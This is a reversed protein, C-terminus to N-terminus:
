TNKKIWDLYASVRVLVTVSDCEESGGSVVGVLTWVGNQECAFPGGSDGQCSSGVTAEDKACINKRTVGYIDHQEALMQCRRLSLIPLKVKYLRDATVAKGNKMYKDNRGWGSVICEEGKLADFEARAPLCAARVNRDTLDLPEKLTLIAIDNTFIHVGQHIYDEHRKVHVVGRYNMRSRRIQGVGIKYSSPDLTKICHAATVIHKESIITGGCLFVRDGFIVSIVVQWPLEGM